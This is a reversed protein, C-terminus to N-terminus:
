GRMVENGKNGPIGSHLVWFKEVDSSPRSHRVNSNTSSVMNHVGSFLM